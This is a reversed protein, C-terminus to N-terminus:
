VIVDDVAFPVESLKYKEYSHLNDDCKLDYLAPWPTDIILPPAGAKTMAGEFNGDMGKVQHPYWVQGLREVVDRRAFAGAGLSGRGYMVKMMDMQPSVLAIKNWTGFKVSAMMYLEMMIYTCRHIIDDSGLRVLYEWEYGLMVKMAENHRAGLTQRNSLYHIFHPEGEVIEKDAGGSHFIHVDWEIEGGYHRNLLGNMCYQLRILRQATGDHTLIMIAAKM